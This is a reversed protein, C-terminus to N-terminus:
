TCKLSTFLLSSIKPIKKFIFENIVVSTSPLFYALRTSHLPRIFGSVSKPSFTRWLSTDSSCAVVYTERTSLFVARCAGAPRERQLYACLAEGVECPLPLRRERHSKGPRVRVCGEVWDIDDLMLHTLECARVGMRALILLM